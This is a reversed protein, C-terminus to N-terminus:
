FKIYSGIVKGCVSWEENEGPFYDEYLPNNSDPCFRTPNLKLRKCTSEGGRILIVIENNLKLFDKQSCDVIAFCNDPLNARDMSDGVIKVARADISDTEFFVYEEIEAEIMECPNGGPVSGVVPIKKLKSETLVGLMEEVSVNECMALKNLTQYNLNDATGNMFENLTTYGVKSKRAWSHNTLDRSDRFTILKERLVKGAYIMLNTNTM